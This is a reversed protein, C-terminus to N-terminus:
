PLSFAFEIKGLRNTWSNAMFFPPFTRDIDKYIRELEKEKMIKQYINQIVINGQTKM